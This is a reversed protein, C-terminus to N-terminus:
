WARFGTLGFSRGAVPALVALAGVIAVAGWAHVSDWANRGDEKISLGVIVGALAILGLVWIATGSRTRPTAPPPPPTSPPPFAGPRPVQVTPQEFNPPQQPPPGGQYGPQNPGQYGPQPPGPPMTMLDWGLRAVITA